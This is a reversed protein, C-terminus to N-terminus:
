RRTKYNTFTASQIPRGNDEAILYQIAWAIRNSRKQGLTNFKQLTTGYSLYKPDTNMRNQEALLEDMSMKEIAKM